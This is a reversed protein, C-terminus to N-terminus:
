SQVQTRMYPWPCSGQPGLVTIDTGDHHPHERPHEAGARPLSPGICRDLSSSAGHVQQALPGPTRGRDTGGEIDERQGEGM